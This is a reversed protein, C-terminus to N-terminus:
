GNRSKASHPSKSAIKAATASISPLIDVSPVFMYKAIFGGTPPLGTLALLFVVMAGCVLPSRWGAGAWDSLHESAYQRGLLMVVLFAGLNMVGYVVLYFLVAGFAERTGLACGMLVYGAHAISSYALLRKANQQSLAALNGWTMTLVALVALVMSLDTRPSLAEWGTKAPVAFVTMLLRMLIAFGAFKPGLSLFTTV